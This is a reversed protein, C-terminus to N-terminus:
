LTVPFSMNLRATHTPHSGAPGFMDSAGTVNRCNCWSYYVLRPPCHKVVCSETYFRFSCILSSNTPTPPQFVTTCLPNRNQTHGWIQTKRAGTEPEVVLQELSRFRQVLLWSTRQSQLPFGAIQFLPDKRKRKHTRPEKFIERGCQWECSRALHTFFMLEESLDCFLSPSESALHAQSAGYRPNSLHGQSQWKHM